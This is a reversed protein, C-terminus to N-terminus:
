VDRSVGAITEASNRVQRVIVALSGNMKMISGWLRDTDNNKSDDRVSAKSTVLEGGAIRDAVRILRGVGFIMYSYLATLVYFAFLYLGAVLLLAANPLARAEPWLALALLPPLVFTAGVLAFGAGFSLRKFAAFAPALLMRQM